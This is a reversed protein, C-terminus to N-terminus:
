RTPRRRRRQRLAAPGQAGPRHSRTPRRSRRATSRAPVEAPLQAHRVDTPDANLAPDIESLSWCRRTTTRRHRGHRLRHRREALVVLAGALGMAVQRAGNPPTARRTSSREPGRPPSPTAHTSCRHRCRHPRRRHRRRRVGVQGPLALPSTRRCSTTCRSPSRTARTCSWCRVPTPRRARGRRHHLLGLDPDAHRRVQATGTMAYLDCTATGAGTCGPPPEGVAPRRRATALTAAAPAVADVTAGTAPPRQAALRAGAPSRLRSPVGALAGASRSLPATRHPLPTMTM